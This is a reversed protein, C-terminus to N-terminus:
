VLCSLEAKLKGCGVKDVTLHELPYLIKSKGKSHLESDIRQSWFPRSELAMFDLCFLHYIYICVCKCGFIEFSAPKLCLCGLYTLYMVQILRRLRWAEWCFSAALKGSAALTSCIVVCRPKRDRTSNSIEAWTGISQLFYASFSGKPLNHVARIEAKIPCCKFPCYADHRLLQVTHVM